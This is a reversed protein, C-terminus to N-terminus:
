KIRHSYFAYSVAKIKTQLKYFQTIICIYIGIVWKLVMGGESFWVDLQWMDFNCCMGSKDLALTLSQEQSSGQCCCQGHQSFGQLLAACDPLLSKKNLLLSGLHSENQFLHNRSEYEDSQVCDGLSLKKRRLPSFRISKNLVTDM